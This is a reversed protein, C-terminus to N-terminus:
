ACQQPRDRNIALRDHAALIAAGIKVFQMGRSQRSLPKLFAQADRGPSKQVAAIV